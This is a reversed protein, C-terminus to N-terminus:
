KGCDEWKVTKADFVPGDACVREHHFGNESEDKISCVCALCAGVGCGMREELSAYCPIGHAIALPATTKMMPLPGCLCVSSYINEQLLTEVLNCAYGCFGQSGDDTSIFVRCGLFEFEEKMNVLEASRFALVVDPLIGKEKLQNATFFLPFTGIGGGALLVRDGLKQIEYGKGLPGLVDIEDGAKRESLYKTGEGRVDFCIRLIGTKADADCISIPRRLTVKDGCKVQLIQGPLAEKAVKPAYFHLDFLTESLKENKIIKGIEVVM